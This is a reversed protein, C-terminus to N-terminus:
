LSSVFLCLHFFLPLWLLAYIVVYFPPFLFFNRQFTHFKHLIEYFYLLYCPFSTVSQSISVTGLNKVEERDTVLTLDTLFGCADNVVLLKM